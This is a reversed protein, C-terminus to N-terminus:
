QKIFAYIDGFDSSTFNESEIIIKFEEYSKWEPLEFQM